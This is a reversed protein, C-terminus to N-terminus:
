GNQIKDVRAKEHMTVWHTYNQPSGWSGTPMVNYMFNAYDWLHRRNYEDSHCAAERLDNQLVATLFSGPPWGRFYYNSLVEIMHEPIKFKRCFDTFQEASYQKDIAM